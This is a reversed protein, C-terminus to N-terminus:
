NNTKTGKSVRIWRERKENILVFGNRSAGSRLAIM